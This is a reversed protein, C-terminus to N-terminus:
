RGTRETKEFTRGEAAPAACALHDIFTTPIASRLCYFVPLASNKGEQTAPKV